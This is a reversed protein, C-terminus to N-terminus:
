KKKQGCGMEKLWFGTQGRAYLPPFVISDAMLKSAYTGGDTDDARQRKHQMCGSAPPVYWRHMDQGSQGPVIVDPDIQRLKRVPVGYDIM